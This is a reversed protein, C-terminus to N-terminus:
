PSLPRGHEDDGMPPGRSQPRLVGEGGVLEGDRFAEVSHAFGLEALECYADVMDPTIWTGDQGPRPIKACQEIVQRFATDM